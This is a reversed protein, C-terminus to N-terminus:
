LSSGGAIAPAEERWVSLALIDGRPANYVPSTLPPECSGRSNLMYGLFLIKAGEM